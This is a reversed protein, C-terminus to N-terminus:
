VEYGTDDKFKDWLEQAKEKDGAQQADYIERFRDQVFNYDEESYDDDNRKRNSNQLLGGLFNSLLGM